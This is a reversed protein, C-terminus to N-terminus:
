ATSAVEIALEAILYPLLHDCSEPTLRELERQVGVFVRLSTSRQEISRGVRRMRAAARGDFLGMLCITDADGPDFPGAGNRLRDRPEERVVAGCRRLLQAVMM